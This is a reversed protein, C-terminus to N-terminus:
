RARRRVVFLKGRRRWTAAFQRGGYCCDERDPGHVFPAEAAVVRGGVVRVGVDAPIGGAAVFGVEYADAAVALANVRFDIHEEARCAGVPVFAFRHYPHCHPSQADHIICTLCEMALTIMPVTTAHFFYHICSSCYGHNRALVPRWASRLDLRPVGPRQSRFLRRACHPGPRRRAHLDHGANSAGRAFEGITRSGKLREFELM